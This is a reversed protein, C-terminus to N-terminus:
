KKSSTKLAVKKTVKSAVKSGVNAVVKLPKKIKKAAPLTKKTSKASKAKTKTKLRSKAATAWDSLSEFESGHLNTSESSELLIKKPLPGDDVYQPFTTDFMRTLAVHITQTETWDFHDAMEKLM